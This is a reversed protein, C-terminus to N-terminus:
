TFMILYVTFAILGVLAALCVALALDLVTDIWTRDDDDM